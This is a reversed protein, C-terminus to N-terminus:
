AMFMSEVEKLTEEISENIDSPLSPINDVHKIYQRYTEIEQSTLRKLDISLSTGMYEVYVRNNSSAHILFANLQKLDEVFFEIGGRGIECSKIFLETLRVEKQTSEIDPDTLLRYLDIQAEDEYRYEYYTSVREGELPISITTGDFLQIALTCKRGQQGHQPLAAQKDLEVSGGSENVASLLQNFVENGADLCVYCLKRINEHGFGNSAYISLALFIESLSGPNQTVVQKFEDADPQVAKLKILESAAYGCYAPTLIQQRLVEIYTQFAGDDRNVPPVEYYTGLTDLVKRHLDLTVSAGVPTFSADTIGGMQLHNVIASFGKRPHFEAILDLLHNLFSPSLSTLSLEDIVENLAEVCVHRDTVEEATTFLTKLYDAATGRAQLIESARGGNLLQYLEVKWSLLDHASYLVPRRSKMREVPVHGSSGQGGLNDPIAAPDRKEM